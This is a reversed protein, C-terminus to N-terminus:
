VTNRGIVKLGNVISYIVKKVKKKEIYAWCEKCPKSNLFNDDNDIRIVYLTDAKQMQSLVSSEAHPTPYKHIESFQAKFSYENHGYAYEKKHVALAFHLERRKLNGFDFAKAYRLLSNLNKVDKKTLM